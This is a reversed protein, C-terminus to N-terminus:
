NENKGEFKRREFSHTNLNVLEPEQEEKEIQALVFSRNATM